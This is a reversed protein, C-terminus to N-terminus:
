VGGWHGTAGLAARVCYLPSSRPHFAGGVPLATLDGSTDEFSVILETDCHDRLKLWYIFEGSDVFKSFGALGSVSTPAEFKPELV